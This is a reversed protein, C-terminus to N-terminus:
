PFILRGRGDSSSCDLHVQARHELLFQTGVHILPSADELEREPLLALLSFDRHSSPGAQTPLWLRVRGIRCPIGYWTPIQGKWGREPTVQIDILERIPLPIVSLLQETALFSDARERYTHRTSPEGHCTLWSECFYHVVPAPFPLTSPLLM